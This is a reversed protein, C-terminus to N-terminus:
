ITSILGLRPCFFNKSLGKGQSAGYNRVRPYTIVYGLTRLSVGYLPVRRVHRKVSGRPTRVGGHISYLSGGRGGGGGGGAFLREFCTVEWNFVGILRCPKALTKQMTNSLFFVVTNERLVWTKRSRTIQHIIVGKKLIIDFTHQTDTDLLGIWRKELRRLKKITDSLLLPQRYVTKKQLKKKKSTYACSANIKLTKKRKEGEKKEYPLHLSTLGDGAGM